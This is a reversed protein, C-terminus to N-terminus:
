SEAASRERWIELLARAITLVIPGLVFGTLGFLAIGGLVSLLISVTHQQLRSGVLIPYLLNDITSVVLAGWAALLLAQWWHGALGLVVAIPLWVLFAGFAPVMALAMTAFAWLLAAPVHLAWFGLGALCGQVAAVVLRGLVTAYITDGVRAFLRDSEAHSLPLLLRLGALAQERDRYLFFLIFLMVVTQVLASASNALVGGLKTAVYAASNQTAQKLDIENAAADLASAIRPYRGILAALQDQATGERFSHAAVIGQRVLSAVLLTGPGVISFIVLVLAVASALTASRLKRRLWEYPRQTVVALVVAGVIAAVFPRVILWCLFLVGLTILFLAVNKWGPEVATRPLPDPTTAQTKM